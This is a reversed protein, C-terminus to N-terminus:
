KADYWSDGVNLSVSMAVHLPVDFPNELIHKVISAAEDSNEAPGELIIEDHVQLVMLWGLERLRDSEYIRIMAAMVIDAASGQIPTNIAARLNHQWVSVDSSLIGPLDRRRGLLTAVYQNITAFRKTQNQWERVEPRDAYWARLTERAVEQPVGWDKALGKATKGYAISFNLVKARKRELAFQDKLLPTDTSGASSSDAELLVTGNEVAEKVHPYMSMATRSHFDGGARFAEIMSKCRTIHALVRLELQAYDAVILKNGPERVFAKRIGLKDKDLAPQNQLNPRRSSLRGTETNLNLSSHIRSGSDASAQLPRIFTNTLTALTKAECLSHIAKCGTEGIFPYAKGKKGISMDGALDRLVKESSSPWFQSTVEEVPLRLGEIKFTAKDETKFQNANNLVEGTKMNRYPAFFLAQKQKDSMLNMHGAAEPQITALWSRFESKALESAEQAKEEAVKLHEIDIKMGVREIEILSEGFPIMYASYVDWLSMRNGMYDETPRSRLLNYLKNALMWTVEADKTSYDIWRQCHEESNQLDLLPPLVLKKGPKGDKNLKPVSFLTKMSEKPKVEPLFYASLFELSYSYISTDLLRAMHMTDGAFGDCNIGENLLVHKDFSYNHWVKGIKPNQFYDKFCQLIGDQTNDIWLKNGNGFDVDKGCFASACIVRGKGVPSETTPDVGETETDWAHTRTIAQDSQLARLAEFAKEKTDVITVDQIDRRLRNVKQSTNPVHFISPLSHTSSASRDVATNLGRSQGVSAGIRHPLSKLVLCARGM